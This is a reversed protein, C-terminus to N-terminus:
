TPKMISNLFQGFYIFLKSFVTIFFGVAMTGLIAQALWHVPKPEKFSINPWLKDLLRLSVEHLVTWINSYILLAAVFTFAFANEIALKPSMKIAIWLSLFVGLAVGLLQLSTIVLRNRVVWHPNKYRGLREKVKSFSNEVWEKDDDQVILVCSKQDTADFGIQLSKGNVLNSTASEVSQLFLMFRDIKNADQFYKLADEFSDLRFGKGDFRILYSQLLYTKLSAPDDKKLPKNVVYAIEGLLENLKSLAAETITLNTLSEDRLFKSM